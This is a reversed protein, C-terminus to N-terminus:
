TSSETFLGDFPDFCGTEIQQTTSMDPDISSDAEIWVWWPSLSRPYETKSITFCPSQVTISLKSSFSERRTTTNLSNPSFIMSM